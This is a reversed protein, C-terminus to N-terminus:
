NAVNVMSFYARIVKAFTFWIAFGDMIQSLTQALAFIKVKGEFMQFRAADELLTIIPQFASLASINKLKIVEAFTLFLQNRNDTRDPQCVARVIEHQQVLGVSVKIWM